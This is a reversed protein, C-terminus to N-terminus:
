RAVFKCHISRQAAADCDIMEFANTNGELPIYAIIGKPREICQAEVVYRKKGVERGILRLQVPECALDYQKLADLYTQMTVQQAVPGSETMRCRIGQKAADLCSVSTLSATSNVHPVQLLFGNGDACSVETYETQRSTAIGLWRVASVECSRKTEKLLSSATAKVDANEPLKCSFASDTKTKGSSTLNAAAFCSVVIAQQSGQSEVIYGVSHSCIIEYIQTAAKSGHDLVEGIGVLQADALECSLGSQSILQEVKARALARDKVRAETQMRKIQLDQDRVANYELMNGGTTDAGGGASGPGSSPSPAVQAFSLSWSIAILLGAVLGGARMNNNM